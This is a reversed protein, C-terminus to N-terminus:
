LTKLYEILDKKDEASLSEFSKFWHGESSQGVQGTYYINRAGKKVEELLVKEKAVTPLTYGLKEQDFRYREGADVLSWVVPRKSPETLLAQINPISGNHLYPFRAWIGELRPAFYGPPLGTRKVVDNLPNRDVLDFFEQNVSILRDRDTKVIDIGIHKPEQFLPLGEEDRQYAGHCKTCTNQFIKEGKLARVKDWGFPYKPPLIDGLLEEAHSIQPILSRINQATQTGAFEVALGWGAMNGDGFGDSFQGVFRKKGYGWFHPVKVQGRANHKPLATGAVNKYFWTQIMSIPVLGQTLNNYRDDSLRAMFALSDKELQKKEETRRQWFTLKLWMEQAKKADTAIQGVDVNKNGLGVFYLGAAKGSHCVICGMAGIQMDKYPVNYFGKIEGEHDILGWREKFPTLVNMINNNFNLKQRDPHSLGLFKAMMEYTKIFDPAIVMGRGEKSFSLKSLADVAHNHSEIRYNGFVLQSYFSFFLLLNLKKM